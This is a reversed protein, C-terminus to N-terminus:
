INDHIINKNIQSTDFHNIQFLFWLLLLLLLLLLAVTVTKDILSCLLFNHFLFTQQLSQSMVKQLSCRALYRCSSSAKLSFKSPDYNLSQYYKFMDYVEPGHPIPYYVM